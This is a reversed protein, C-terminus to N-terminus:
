EILKCARRTKAMKLSPCLHLNFFTPMAKENEIHIFHLNRNQFILTFNKWRITLSCHSRDKSCFQMNCSADYSQLISLHNRSLRNIKIEFKGIVDENPNLKTILNTLKLPNALGRCNYSVFNFSM